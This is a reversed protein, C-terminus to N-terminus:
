KANEIRRLVTYVDQLLGTQEEIMIELNNIHEKLEKLEVHMESNMVSESLAERIVDSKNKKSKLNMLKKLNEEDKPFLILAERKQKGDIKKM